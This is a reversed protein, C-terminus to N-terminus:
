TYSLSKYTKKWLYEVYQDNQNELYKGLPIAVFKLSTRLGSSLISCFMLPDCPHVQNVLHALNSQSLIGMDYKYGLRSQQNMTRERM